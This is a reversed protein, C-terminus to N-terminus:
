AQPSADGLHRSFWDASLHAMIELKGPEGFLHSAGPVVQLEKECDLNPLAERNLEIGVTDHEGVILLTPCTVRPVSRTALDMRGGRSVVAGVKDRLKAAAILVAAGGACTGFYGIRLSHTDPAAIVWKTVAGLRKALFDANHRYKENVEDEAEEDETLLDCVLTGLGKERIMRAVHRNRPNNQSRGCDHAFVVVASSEEPLQLDGLLFVDDASIRVCKSIEGTSKTNMPNSQLSQCELHSRAALVSRPEPMGTTM